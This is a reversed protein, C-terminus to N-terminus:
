GAAVKIVGGRDLTTGLCGAEPCPDAAVTKLRVQGAFLVATARTMM